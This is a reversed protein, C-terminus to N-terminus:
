LSACSVSSTIKLSYIHFATRVEQSKISGDDENPETKEGTGESSSFEDSSFASSLATSTVLYANMM